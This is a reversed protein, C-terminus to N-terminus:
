KRQSSQVKAMVPEYPRNKSPRTMLVCELGTERADVVFKTERGVYYLLQSCEDTRAKVNELAKHQKEGWKWRDTNIM